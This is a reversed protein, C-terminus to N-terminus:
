IAALKTVSSFSSELYEDHTIVIMQRDTNRMYTDVLGFLEAVHKRNDTDLGDTPEDLVLLGIKSAFMEHLTLWFAVALLVREGGSLAKASIAWGHNTSALFSLDNNLSISFPAQLKGLTENMGELMRSLFAHHVLKPISNRHVANRARELIDIWEKIPILQRAQEAVAKLRQLESLQSQKDSVRLRSGYVKTELAVRADNVKQAKGARSARYTRGELQKMLHAITAETQSISNSLEMIHSESSAIQSLVTTKQRLLLEYSQVRQHAVNYQEQSILEGLQLSYDSLQKQKETLVAELTKKQQCATQYAALARSIVSQQAANAAIQARVESLRERTQVPDPINQHEPLAGCTPCPCNSGRQEALQIVEVQLQLRTQEESLVLNDRARCDKDSETYACRLSPQLLQLQKQTEDISRKLAEVQQHGALQIKYTDIFQKDQLYFGSNEYGSIKETLQALEDKSQSLMTERNSRTARYQSLHENHSRLDVDILEDKRSAEIAADCDSKLPLKALQEEESQLTETLLTLESTAAGIREEIHVIDLTEISQIMAQKGTITTGLLKWIDELYQTRCLYAITKAWEAETDDLFQSVHGQEIFVFRELVGKDLGYVSNLRTQIDADQLLTVEGSSDVYRMEVRNSAPTLTRTIESGCRDALQVQVVAQKAGIRICGKRGSTHRNFQNTLGGFLGNNIATSKGAGNPGLVGNVGPVFDLVLERHQCFNTLRLQKLLM